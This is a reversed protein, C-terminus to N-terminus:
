AAVIDNAKALYLYVTGGSITHAILGNFLVPVPFSIPVPQVPGSTVINLIQHYKVVGGADKIVCEDNDTGGTDIVWNIASVLFSTRTLVATTSATDLIIPNGTLVNAM